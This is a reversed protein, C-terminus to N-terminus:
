NGHQRGKIKGAEVAKDLDQEEKKEEDDPEYTDLYNLDPQGANVWATLWFSGINIISTRFRREVMGDLMDDYAKAYEECYNKIANQGKMNYCYKGDEPFEENLQREFVLVSDLALHSQLIFEWIKEHPNDIYQAKGVWYDYNEAYLEPLRSEWFGHIGVQNTLQGNYNETTHLPVHGDAMYHGIEASYRLIKKSDRDEFAYTLRRLMTELHWPLIGYARLTDESFKAVADDWKRPVKQFPYTDYHDIDIFHREAEGKVSYRRRDPATSRETIYEINKKYFAIM